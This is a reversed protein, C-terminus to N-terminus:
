AENGASLGKAHGSACHAENLEETASARLEVKVLFYDYVDALALDRLLGEPVIEDLIVYQGAKLSVPENRDPYFAPPLNILGDQGRVRRHRLFDCGLNGM